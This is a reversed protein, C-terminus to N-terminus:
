MVKWITTGVPAATWKQTSSSSCGAISLQYSKNHAVFKKNIGDAEKQLKEMKKRASTDSIIKPILKTVEKQITKQRSKMKKIASSTLRGKGTPAALCQKSSNAYRFQRNTANWQWRAKGYDTALKQMAKIVNNKAAALNPTANTSAVTTDVAADIWVKKIAYGDTEWSRHMLQGRNLGFAQGNKLAGVAKCTSATLQGNGTVKICANSKTNKYVVPCSEVGVQAFSAVAKMQKKLADPLLPHNKLPDFIPGESICMDSVVSADKAPKNRKFNKSASAFTKNKAFKGRLMTLAADANAALKQVIRGDKNFAWRQEAGNTCEALAIQYGDGFSKDRKTTTLCRGMQRIEGSQTLAYNQYTDDRCLRSIVKRFKSDGSTEMCREIGGTKHGIQKYGAFFSGDPLKESAVWTQLKSKACKQVSLLSGIAGVKGKKPKVASPNLLHKPDFRMQQMGKPDASLCLDTGRKKLQGNKTMRWRQQDVEKRKTGAVKFFNAPDLASPREVCDTVKVRAGAKEAATSLCDGLSRVEGNWRFSFGQNFDGNCSWLLAAPETIGDIQLKTRVEICKDGGLRIMASAPLIRGKADINTPQLTWNTVTDKCSALNIFKLGAPGPKTARAMCLKTGQLKLRSGIWVFKQNKPKDCKAVYLNAGKKLGRATVCDFENRLEGSSRLDFVQYDGGDCKYELLMGDAGDICTKGGPARFSVTYLSTQPTESLQALDALPTVAWHQAKAKEDCEGLNLANKTQVACKGSAISLRGNALRWKQLPKDNCRLLDVGAGVDPGKAALCLPKKGDSGVSVLDGEPSFRMLIDDGVGKCNDFVLKKDKLRLCKNNGLNQYKGGKLPVSTNLAGSSSWDPPTFGGGSSSSSSGGSGGGSSGGGFFGNEIEKIAKKALSSVLGGIAKGLDEPDAPKFKLDVNVPQDFAEFKAKMIIPSNGLLAQLSGEFIAEEFNFSKRYAKVAEEIGKLAYETAQVTLDAVKVAGKAAEFAANSALIAPQFLVPVLKFSGKVAELAALATGKAAYMGGLKINLGAIELSLKIQKDVRYFDVKKLEKVKKDITSKTSKIENQIKEVKAAAKDIDKGAKDVEKEAKDFAGQVKKQEKEVDDSAKKLDKRAADVDKKYAAVAKTLEKEIKGLVFDLFDGEFALRAKFDPNSSIAAEALINSTFAQGLKDTLEFGMKDKDLQIQIERSVGLLAIHAGVYLHPLDSLGAEADIRAEKIKLPGLKDLLVEGDISFGSETLEAKAQALDKGLARLRGQIGMGMGDIDLNPDSAGPTALYIRVDELEGKDNKFQVYEIKPLKDLQLTKFLGKGRAAKAVANSGTSGIFVDALDMFGELSIHNTSLDFVVEKPLGAAAATPTMLTRLTFTTKGDKLTVDGQMGVSIAGDADVSVSIAVDRMDFDQLGFANDWTDLTGGMNIGVGSASVVARMATGLQLDQKGVKLDTILEVGISSEVSSGTKKFALVIQPTIGKAAKMFKPMKGGDGFTPMAAFLSVSPNGGFIGEITGGLIFEGDSIGLAKGADGLEKADITGLLGVGQAIDLSGNTKEALAGLVSETVSPLKDLDLKGPDDKALTFIIGPLKINGLPTKGIDAHIDSLKFTETRFMVVPKKSSGTGLFAVAADLTKGKWSMIGGFGANSVTLESFALEKIGPVSSLGALGGIEFSKGEPATLQVAVETTDGTEVSWSVNLSQSGLETSATMAASTEDGANIDIEVNSLNLGPIGLATRWEDEVAVNMNFAKGDANIETTLNISATPLAYDGPLTLSLEPLTGVLSFDPTPKTGSVIEELMAQTLLGNIYIQKSASDKLGIFSLAKDTLTSKSLDMVGLVTLGPKVEVSFENDGTAASLITAVSDPVDAAAMEGETNALVFAQNNLGLKDVENLGPVSKVLDSIKLDSKPRLLAFGQKSCNPAFLHVSWDGGIPLSLDGSIVDGDLAVNQFTAVGLGDITGVLTEIGARCAADAYPGTDIGSIAESLGASQGSVPAGAALLVSVLAVARLRRLKGSFIM